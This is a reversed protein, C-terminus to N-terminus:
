ENARYEECANFLSRLELAATEATPFPVEVKDSTHTVVSVNSTNQIFATAVTTVDVFTKEGLWHYKSM